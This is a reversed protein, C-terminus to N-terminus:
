GIENVEVKFFSKRLVLRLTIKVDAELDNLKDSKM